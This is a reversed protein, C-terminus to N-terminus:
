VSNIHNSCTRGSCSVTGPLDGSRVAFGDRVSRAAAPQDRDAAVEEALVRGAAELLRVTESPRVRRRARVEALVSARAQEFTVTAM